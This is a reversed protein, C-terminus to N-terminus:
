DYKDHLNRKSKWIKNLATMRASSMERKLCGCSRKFGDRLQYSIATTLNGCDCRCEYVLQKVTDRGICQLVTLRGFKQGSLNGLRRKRRPKPEPKPEADPDPAGFLALLSKSM